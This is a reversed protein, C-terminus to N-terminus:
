QKRLVQSKLWALQNSYWKQVKALLHGSCDCDQDESAKIEAAVKDLQAYAAEANKPGKSEDWWYQLFGDRTEYTGLLCGVGNMRWSAAAPTQPNADAAEFFKAAALDYSGADRLSVADAHIATADAVQAVTVDVCPNHVGKKGSITGAWGTGVMLMFLLGLMLRGLLGKMFTM